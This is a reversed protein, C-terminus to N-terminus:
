QEEPMGTLVAPEHWDDPLPWSHYELAPGRLTTNHEPLCSVETGEIDISIWEVPITHWTFAFYWAKAERPANMPCNVAPNPWAFTPARHLIARARQALKPDHFTRAYILRGDQPRQTGHHYDFVSIAVTDPVREMASTAMGHILALVAVLLLSGVAFPV